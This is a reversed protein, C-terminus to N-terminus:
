PLWPYFIRTWVAAAVLATAAYAAVTATMSDSRLKFATGRSRRVAPLFGFRLYVAHYEDLVLHLACGAGVAVAAWVAPLRGSPEMLLFALGACTLCFPLSHMMGRHTTWRRILGCLGHYVVLYALTFYCIAAEPTLGLRGVFRLWVLSPVLVSVVQSLFALPRGTDSDLDPLLAAVVGLVFVAGAQLPNLGGLAGGAAAFAAGAVVGSTLHAKFGAM